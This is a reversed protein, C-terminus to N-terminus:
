THNTCVCVCVCMDISFISHCRCRRITSQCGNYLIHEMRKGGGMKGRRRCRARRSLALCDFGDVPNDVVCVVCVRDEEDTHSQCVNLLYTTSLYSQCVMRVCGDM